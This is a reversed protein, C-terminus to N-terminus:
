MYVRCLVRGLLSDKKKPQEMSYDTFAPIIEVETGGINVRVKTPLDNVSVVEMTKEEQMGEIKIINKEILSEITLNKM